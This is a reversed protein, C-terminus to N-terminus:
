GHIMSLCKLLSFASHGQSLPPLPPMYKSDQFRMQSDKNGNQSIENLYHGWIVIIIFFPWSFSFWSPFFHIIYMNIFFLIKGQHKKSLNHKLDCEYYTKDITDLTKTCLNIHPRAALNSTWHILQGKDKLNSRSM